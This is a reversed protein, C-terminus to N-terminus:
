FWHIFRKVTSLLCCVRLLWAFLLAEITRETHIYLAIHPSLCVHCKSTSTETHLGVCILFAAPTKQCQMNKCYSLAATVTIWVFGLSKRDFLECEWFHIETGATVIQQTFKLSKEEDTKGVERGERGAQTMGNRRYM